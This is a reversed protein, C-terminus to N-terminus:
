QIYRPTIYGQELAYEAAACALESVGNWEGQATFLEFQMDEHRIILVTEGYLEFSEFSYWDMDLMIRDVYETILMIERITAQFEAEKRIAQPTFTANLRPMMRERISEIRNNITYM